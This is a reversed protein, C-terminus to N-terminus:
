AEYEDIKEYGEGESIQEIQSFIQEVIYDNQLAETLVDYAENKTCSVRDLVDDVCWLYEVNYGYKKLINKANDIEKKRVLQLRQADSLPQKSLNIM